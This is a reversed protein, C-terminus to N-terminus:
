PKPFRREIWQVIPGTASPLLINKKGCQLGVPLIHSTLISDHMGATQDYQQLLVGDKL